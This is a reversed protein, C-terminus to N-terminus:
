GRKESKDKRRRVEERRRKIKIEEGSEATRPKV